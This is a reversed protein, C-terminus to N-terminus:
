NCKRRCIDFKAYDIYDRLELYKKYNLQGIDNINDKTDNIFILNTNTYETYVRSLVGIRGMSIIIYDRDKMNSFTKGVNMINFLDNKSFAFTAIKIIQIKTKKMQFILKKYDNITLSEFFNHYSLIIKKPNSSVFCKFLKENTKYKNYEIDIASFLCDNNIEQIYKYYKDTSIDFVGGEKKTRITIIISKDLKSLININKKIISIPTNEKLLYDLRYELCNIYDYKKKNFKKIIKEVDIDFVSVCINKKSLDLDLM